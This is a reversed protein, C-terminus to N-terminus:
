LPAGVGSQPARGSGDSAGRADAPPGIPLLALTGVVECPESRRRLVIIHPSVNGILRPGFLAGSRFDAAREYCLEGRLLAMLVRREPREFPQSYQRYRASSLVLLEPPESGPYHLGDPALKVRVVTRTPALRPLHSPDADTGIVGAPHAALWPEAGYRADTLLRVDMSAGRAVGIVLMSGVLVRRAWARPAGSDGWLAAVGLGAFPALAAVVPLVYRPVAYLIPILFTVYYSLAMALPIEAGRVRRAAALVLGAVCAVTFPLGLTSATANAARLSVRVVRPVSLPVGYYPMASPGTLQRAHALYGAPDIALLSALAYVGVFSVLAALPGTEFLRRAQWRRWLLPVPLLAFCAYAQDKTAIALAAAAGLLAYTRVTSEGRAVRVALWLGVMTWCLYPIDVNTTHAYYVTVPSSLLALAAFVAARRGFLEAATLGAFVVAVAGMAASVLRALLALRGLAELPHALGYPYAAGITGIEGRLKLWAVYPAQVLTLLLFHFAPYKGSWKEGHILHWTFALPSLPSLGDTAWDGTPHPLGWRIGVVNLGFALVAVGALLRALAPDRTKM